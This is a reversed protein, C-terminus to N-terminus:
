RSVRNGLGKVLFDLPGIEDFDSLLLPQNIMEKMIAPNSFLYEVHEIFANLDKFESLNVIAKPNLLGASDIGWYLPISGALWAELVKETVWGPYLDNEFCLNFWYREAAGIKDQVYNGVSRGYVDVKGIKSLASIARLRTPHPNNIFSSVFGNKSEFFNTNLNRKKTCDKPKIQHKWPKKKEDGIHMYQYLLPLYYNTESFSDQDYSFTLDFDGSPPRHNEFTCWINYANVDSPKIIGQQHNLWETMASDSFRSKFFLYTKKILSIEPYCGYVDIPFNIDILESARDILDGFYNNKPDFDHPFNYFRVEGKIGMLFSVM